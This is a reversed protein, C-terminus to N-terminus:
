GTFPAIRRLADTPCRHSVSLSRTEIDPFLALRGVLHFVFCAPDVNWNCFPTRRKLFPATGSWALRWGWCIRRGSWALCNADAQARNWGGVGASRHLDSSHGRDAGGNGALLLCAGIILSTRWNAWSSKGIGQSLAIAYMIIGAILFRSGAMLFPPMTEIAFLIGLYTSGWILYLAAFAVIIRIKTPAPMFSHCDAM